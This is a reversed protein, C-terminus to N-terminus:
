RLILLPWSRLPSESLARGRSTLRYATAFPFARISSAEILDLQVLSQLACGISQPGPRLCQRFRSKTASSERNLLLLIELAGRHHEIEYLVSFSDTPSIELQTRGGMLSRIRADPSNFQIGSSPSSVGPPQDKPPREAPWRSTLEGEGKEIPPAAERMWRIRPADDPHNRTTLVLDHIGRRGQTAGPTVRVARKGRAIM